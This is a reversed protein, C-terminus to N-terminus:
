WLYLQLCMSTEIIQKTKNILEINQVFMYYEQMM